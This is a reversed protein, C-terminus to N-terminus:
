LPPQSQPSNSPGEVRVFDWLREREAPPQKYQPWGGEYRVATYTTTTPAGDASLELTLRWAGPILWHAESVPPPGGIQLMMPRGGKEPKERPIALIDLPRESKKALQTETSQPHSNSWVFERGELEPKCEEWRSREASWVEIRLLAVRVKSASSRGENRVYLRLYAVRDEMPAAGIGPFTVAGILVLSSDTSRRLKAVIRPRLLRERLGLGLAIAVITAGVTGVATMWDAVTAHTTELAILYTGGDESPLM